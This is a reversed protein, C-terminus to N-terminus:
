SRIAGKFGRSATTVKAGIAGAIQTHGRVLRPGRNELRNGHISSRLSTSIIVNWTTMKSKLYYNGISEKLVEYTKEINKNGLKKQPTIIVIDMTEYPKM